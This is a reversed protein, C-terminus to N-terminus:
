PWSLFIDLLCARQPLKFVMATFLMETHTHAQTSGPRGTENASCCLFLFTRTNSRSSCLASLCLRTSISNLDFWDSGFGCPLSRCEYFLEAFNCSSVPLWVCVCVIYLAQCLSSCCEITCLNLCSGTCKIHCFTWDDEHEKVGVVSLDLFCWISFSKSHGM